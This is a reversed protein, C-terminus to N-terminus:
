AIPSAGGIRRALAAAFREAAREDLEFYLSPEILEAEMLVFGGETRVFDVRSYLLDDPLAARARDAAARLAPEPEVAALRGGHEEQVRFDGAAPTKLISHSYSGDFYFVSFEGETLIAPLFPQVMAERGRLAELAIRRGPGDVARLRYTHDANASVTPKVVVEDTAFREFAEDLDAEGPSSVFRTDVVAVGAERLDRLYHKDLNWRVVELPNFLEAGSADIRRLSALFAEPDDQYDWTSRIVVADFRDWDVDPRRWPITEVEIGRAALPEHTLADYVFFGELRDMSLYAVRPVESDERLPPM